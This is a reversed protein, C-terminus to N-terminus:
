AIAVKESTAKVIPAAKKAPKVSLKDSANMKKPEQKAAVQQDDKDDEQEADNDEESGYDYQYKDM